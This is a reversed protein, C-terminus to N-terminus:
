GPHRGGALSEGRKQSVRDGGRVSDLSQPASLAPFLERVEPIIQAVYAAGSGFHALLVDSDPERLCSRLSHVWPWYAPAGGAEWCRGWLVQVGRAKAKAAFEDALRSKGIGPEGAVLFLHGCGSVADELGALLMGMERERGVFV